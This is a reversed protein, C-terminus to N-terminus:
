LERTRQTVKKGKLDKVLDAFNYFNNTQEVVRPNWGDFRRYILDAAKIDGNSAAKFLASDIKSIKEAYRERRAELAAKAWKGYEQKAKKLTGVTIGHTTVFATDSKEDNDPNARYLIYADIVSKSDM